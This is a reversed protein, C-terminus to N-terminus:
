SSIDLIEDLSAICNCEIAIIDVRCGERGIREHRQSAPLHKNLYQFDWEFLREGFQVGGLFPQKRQHLNEFVAFTGSLLDLM